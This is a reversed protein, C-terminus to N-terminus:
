RNVDFCGENDKQRKDLTIEHLRLWLFVNLSNLVKFNGGGIRLFFAWHGTQEYNLKEQRLAWSLPPVKERFSLARLEEFIQTKVLFFFLGCLSKTICAFMIGEMTAKTDMLGASVMWETQLLDPRCPDVISESAGAKIALLTLPKPQWPM